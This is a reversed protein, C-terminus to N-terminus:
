AGDGSPTATVAKLDAFVAYRQAASYLPHCATLILRERGVDDVIEVASPDVIKTDTVRYTFKGYPMEVTIEDGVDIGDIMNFPAGYTTRHGAIGISRGQGPLATEPYHGPGKQLDDTGTGEVVVYDADISPIDIRGIGRGEELRKAFLDALQAARGADDRGPELGTVAPDILFDDRLADLQDDAARQRLSSYLSSLPEKWALTAGADALVVLGATILAVSFIRAIRRM